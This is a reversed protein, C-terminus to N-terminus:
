ANVSNVEAETLARYEGPKLAEDLVIEGVKERHLATVRNGIAGFMRKVQHYRGEYITLRAEKPSLIELQAPLTIKDDSKLLLGDAFTKIAAEPIAEATGVRYVKPKRNKPATIRHSWDGDETILLLGTTDMDLRGAIHLNEKYEENILDLAIKHDPDATVSLYGTPKNLMFYRTYRAKIVEDDLQVCMSDDVAHKCSKITRGDVKVRAQLIRAKVDRRSYETYNSIFRDLRM